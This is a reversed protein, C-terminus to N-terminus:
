NRLQNLERKLNEIEKQYSIEKQEWEDKMEQLEEDHLQQIQRFLDRIKCFRCLLSILKKNINRSKINYNM